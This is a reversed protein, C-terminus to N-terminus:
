RKPVAGLTQDAFDGGHNQAKVAPNRHRIGDLQHALLTGGKFPFRTRRTGLVEPISAPSITLKLRGRDLGIMTQHLLLLASFFYLAVADSLFPNGLLVM